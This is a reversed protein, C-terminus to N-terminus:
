SVPARDAVRRWLTGDSFILTAGGAEDSAYLIAGAGEAAASPLSAVTFAKVRAAGDIHLRSTPASVGLGVRATDSRILLADTFSSGDSTVRLHLHEDGTLGVEARGSYGTQFLLSASDAATHKNLKLQVGAGAHDFLSAAARVTLPNGADASAGVGLRDLNQLARLTLGVDVWGAATRVVLGGEDKIWGIQGVSVPVVAWAGAEFRLLTGDEHGAWDTGTASAPLLYLAGDAPAPPQAALTRSEVATQVLADLLALGENVTVHKQAQAAALYPLGLRPTAEDSM